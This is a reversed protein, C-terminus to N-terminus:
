YDFMAERPQFVHNEFGKMGQVKDSVVKEKMNEKTNEDEFKAEMLGIIYDFRKAQDDDSMNDVARELM